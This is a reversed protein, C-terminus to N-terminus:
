AHGLSGRRWRDALLLLLGAILPPLALTLVLFWTTAPSNHFFYLSAWLLFLGFTTFLAGGATSWRWALAVTILLMLVIAVPVPSFPQGKHLVTGASSAVAFFTWWAAWLSGLGLALARTWGTVPAPEQGQTTITRQHRETGQNSKRM